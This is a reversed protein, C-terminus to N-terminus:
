RVLRDVGADVDECNKDNSPLLDLERARLSLAAKDAKRLLPKPVHPPSMSLIFFQPKLPTTTQGM